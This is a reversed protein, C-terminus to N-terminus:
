ALAGVALPSFRLPMNYSERINGIVENTYILYDVAIFNFRSAFENWFVLEAAGVLVVLGCLPLLALALVIKLAAPYRAPWWALLVAFPALLFTAAGLDFLAGILLAPVIRWPLFFSRGGNFVALAVRVLANFALFALLLVGLAALRSPFLWAEISRWARTPTFTMGPAM